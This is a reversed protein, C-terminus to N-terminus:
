PLWASQKFVSSNPRLHSVTPQSCEIHRVCSCSAVGGLGNLDVLGRSYTWWLVLRIFGNKGGNETWRKLWKSEVTSLSKKKIAPQAIKEPSGLSITADRNEKELPFILQKGELVNQVVTKQSHCLVVLRIM